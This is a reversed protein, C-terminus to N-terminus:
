GRVKEIQSIWVEAEDKDRIRAYIDDFSSGEGGGNAEGGGEDLYVDYRGEERRGKTGVFVQWLQVLFVDWCGWGM